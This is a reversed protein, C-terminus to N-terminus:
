QGSRSVTLNADDYNVPWLFYVLLGRRAAFALKEAVVAAGDFAVWVAGM